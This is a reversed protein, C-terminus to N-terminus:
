EAGMTLVIIRDEYGLLLSERKTPNLEHSGDARQIGLVIEGAAGLWQQLEFFDAADIIGDAPRLSVEACRCRAATLPCLESGEAVDGTCVHSM